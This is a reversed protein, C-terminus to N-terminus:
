GDVRSFGPPSEPLPIHHLQRLSSYSFVPRAETPTLYWLPATGDVLSQGAPLLGHDQLEGEMRRAAQEVSGSQSLGDADVLEAAVAGGATEVVEVDVM